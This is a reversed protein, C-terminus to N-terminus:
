RDIEELRIDRLWDLHGILGDFVPPMWAIQPRLHDFFVDSHKGTEGLLVKDLDSVRVPKM